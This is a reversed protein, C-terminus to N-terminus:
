EPDGFTLYEWMREFLEGTFVARSAVEDDNYVTAAAALDHQVSLVALEVKAADELLWALCAAQEIAVGVCVAGNGRMVIARSAGLKEALARAKEDSRTLTPDDWLPPRPAFYTGSGHRPEPTRKLTSLAMLRPPQVRCIGGVDPRRRYIQQHLRVEGLVGQPFPGEIPVRTGTEGPAICGMPRPACVLFEREDIRASVHGYAHALGHRGMARATKRVRIELAELSPNNVDPTM